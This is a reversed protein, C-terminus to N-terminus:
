LLAVYFCEVIKMAREECQNIRGLRVEFVSINKGKM